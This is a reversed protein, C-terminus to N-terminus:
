QGDSTILLFSLMDTEPHLRLLGFMSLNVATRSFFITAYSYQRHSEFPTTLETTFPDGKERFSAPPEEDRVMGPVPQQSGIAEARIEFNIQHIDLILLRRGPLLGPTKDFM